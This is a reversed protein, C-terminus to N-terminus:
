TEIDVERLSSIGDPVGYGGCRGDSDHEPGPEPSEHVAYRIRRYEGVLVDSVHWSGGHSAVLPPHNQAGQATGRDRAQLTSNMQVFPVFGFPDDEPDPKQCM